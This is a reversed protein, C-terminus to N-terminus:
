GKTGCQAVQEFIFSINELNTCVLFVSGSLLETELAGYVLLAICYYQLRCTIQRDSLATWKIFNDELM